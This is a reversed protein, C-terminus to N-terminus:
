KKNKSSRNYSTKIKRRKRASKNKLWKIIIVLAVILVALIVLLWPMLKTRLESMGSAAKSSSVSSDKGAAFSSSANVEEPQTNDDPVPVLATEQEATSSASGESSAAEPEAESEPAAARQVIITYVNKYQADDAIPKEDSIPKDSVSVTRVTGTESLKKSGEFWIYDEDSAREADVEIVEVDHEVKVVYDFIYPSFDPVLKGASVELSKLLGRGSSGGEQSDPSSNGDASSAENLSSDSLSEGKVTVEASATPSGLPEGDASSVNCNSFTIATDGKSVANFSLFSILTNSQSDSIEKFHIVGGSGSASGGTFSIVSSDFLIDAEAMGIAKDSSFTLKIEFSEGASVSDPVSIVAGTDAFATVACLQMMALLLVIFAASIRKIHIM